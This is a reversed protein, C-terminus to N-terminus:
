MFLYNRIKNYAAYMIHLFYITNLLKKYNKQM